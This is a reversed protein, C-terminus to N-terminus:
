SMYVDLQCECIQLRSSREQYSFVCVCALKRSCEKMRKVMRAHSGDGAAVSKNHKGDLEFTIWRCQSRHCPMMFLAHRRKISKRKIRSLHFSFHFCDLATSLHLM